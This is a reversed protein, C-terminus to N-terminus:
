VGQKEQVEIQGRAASVIVCYKESNKYARFGYYGLPDKEEPMTCGIGTDDPLTTWFTGSFEMKFRYLDTYGAQEVLKEANSASIPHVVLLFAGITILMTVMVTVSVAPVTKLPLKSILVIVAICTLAFWYEFHYPETILIVPISVAIVCCLLQYLRIRLFATPYNWQIAYNQNDISSRLAFIIYVACISGIFFPDQLLMGDYVAFHLYFIIATCVLCILTNIVVKRM